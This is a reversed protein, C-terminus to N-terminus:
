KVHLEETELDFITEWVAVTATGANLVAFIPKTLLQGQHAIDLKIPAGGAAQLMGSGAVAPDILSLTIRATNDSGIVLGTRRPNPGVLQASTTSLAVRREIITSRRGIKIDEICM